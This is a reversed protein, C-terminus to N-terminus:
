KKHCYLCIDSKMSRLMKPKGTLGHPEHCTVCTMKGNYLPLGKVKMSPKVDVVHEAPAVRNPHCDVCLDTIPAKLIVRTGAENLKHCIRCDKKIAPAQQQMDASAPCYFGAAMVASLLYPLYKKM